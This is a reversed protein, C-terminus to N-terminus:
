LPEVSVFMVMGAQRKGTIRWRARKSVTVEKEDMGSAFDVSTGLPQNKSLFVVGVRGGRLSRRATAYGFAEKNNSTWSSTGNMDIVQGVSLADVDDKFMGMGRYTMGKWKPALNIFREIYEDANRLNENVYRKGQQYERLWEYGTGTYFDIADYMIEADEDGVGTIKKIHEIADDWEMYKEHKSITRTRAGGNSVANAANVSSERAKLTEKGM